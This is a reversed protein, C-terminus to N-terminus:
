LVRVIIFYSSCIKFREKTFNILTDKDDFELYQMEFDSWYEKPIYSGEKFVKKLLKRIMIPFKITSILLLNIIGEVRVSFKRFSASVHKNEKAEEVKEINLIQDDMREVASILINQFQANSNMWVSTVQKMIELTALFPNGESETKNNRFIKVVKHLWLLHVVAWAIARFRREPTVIIEKGNKDFTKMKGRKQEVKVSERIEAANVGDKDNFSKLPLSSLLEQKTPQDDVDGNSWNVVSLNM